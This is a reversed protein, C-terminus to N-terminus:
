RGKLYKIRIESTNLSNIPLQNVEFNADKKSNQIPNHTEPPTKNYYLRDGVGFMASTDRSCVCILHEPFTAGYAMIEGDDTMRMVNIRIEQPEDWTTNNIKKCLWITQNNKLLTTNIAM